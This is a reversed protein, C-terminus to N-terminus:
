AHEATRDNVNRRRTDPENEGLVNLYRLQLVPVEVPGHLQTPNKMKIRRGQRKAQRLWSLKRIAGHESRSLHDAMARILVDRAPELPRVTSM